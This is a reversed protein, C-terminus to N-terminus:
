AKIVNSFAEKYAGRTDIITLANKQVIELDYQDHDTTIIVVDKDVISQQTLDISNM